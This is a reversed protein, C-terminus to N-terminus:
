AKVYKMRHLEVTSLLKKEEKLGSMITPNHTGVKDQKFHLLDIKLNEYEQKQKARKMKQAENLFEASDTDDNSDDANANGKTFTNSDAESIDSESEGAFCIEM